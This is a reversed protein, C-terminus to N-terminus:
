SMLTDKNKKKDAKSDSINKRVDEVYNGKMIQSFVGGDVMIDTGTIFEAADSILFNAVGAIDEPM